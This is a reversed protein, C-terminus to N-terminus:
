QKKRLTFYEQEALTPRLGSTFEADAKAPLILERMPKLFDDIRDLALVLAETNEMQIQM